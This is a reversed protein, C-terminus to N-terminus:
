IKKKKKTRHKTLVVIAIITDFTDAHDFRYTARVKKGVFFIRPWCLQVVNKRGAFSGTLFILVTGCRFDVSM